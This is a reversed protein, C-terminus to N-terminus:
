KVVKHMKGDAMRRITLKANNNKRGILDYSEVKSLGNREVRSIGTVANDITLAIPSSVTGLMQQYKVTETLEFFEDTMENHLLFSVQEDNNGHITIFFKGDVIKGEGRCEGDVFAGITYQYANDVNKIEAVMSMNNAFQSDDYNWVSQNFARAGSANEDGQEMTAESNVYLTRNSYSPSYILYGQNKEIVTLTGTWASGNWEAFGSNKSVIRTGTSINTGDMDFVNTLLRNYYFPSGFWTWGRYTLSINDNDEPFLGNVLSTSAADSMLIKYCAGQAVNFSNDTCFLGWAPDNILLTSQTRAENFSSLFTQNFFTDFENAISGYFNSRWQWGSSFTYTAPINFSGFVDPNNQDASNGDYISLDSSTTEGTVTVAGPLQSQYNIIINDTNNVRSSISVADWTLPLENINMHITIDAANFQANAPKPEFRLTGTGNDGPTHYVMLGDLSTVINVTLVQPLGLAYSSGTYDGTFNSYDFWGPTVTITATGVQASTVDVYAGNGSIGTNDDNITLANGSVTIIGHANSYGAPLLTINANILNKVYTAFDDQGNNEIVLPNQAFSVGKVPNEVDIKMTNGSINLNPNDASVVKINYEGAAKFVLSSDSNIVKDIGLPTENTDYRETIVFNFHKNTANAPEIQVLGAIRERIEDDVNAGNHLQATNWNFKISTVPQVVTVTIADPNSPRLDPSGSRKIVPTLTTTGPALLTYGNATKGIITPDGIEWTVTETSSSPTITYAEDSNLLTNLAADDEGIRFTRSTSGNIAISTAPENIRLKGYAWFPNMLTYEITDNPTSQTATLINGDIEAYTGYNGMDWTLPFNIPLSGNAPIVTMYDTLDVSEGVNMVITQLEVGTAATLTFTPHYTPANASWTIDISSALNYECGSNGHYIVFRIAKGEDSPETPDIDGKVQIKIIYKGLDTSYTPHVIARPYEEDAVFAAIQYDATPYDVDSLNTVFDAVIWTDYGQNPNSYGPLLTWNLVEFQAMAGMSMLICTIFALLKKM